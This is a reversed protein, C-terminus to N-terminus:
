YDGFLSLQNSLPMHMLCGAQQMGEIVSKNLKARNKLDEVSLFEGGSRSEVLNFAATEGLGQLSCLPPLIGNPTPLFKKAESKYIDIPLFKIKRAYMEIVLELVKVQDEDKTTHETSPSTLEQMRNKAKDTGNIMYLADFDMVKITFSTAYFELPYYVKYWAIRFSMMVYAAAHAKPFMYKITKCSKIYWEPVSSAIMADEQEPSLGKGKRVQEMIKFSLKKDVGAHILYLMIDDRCCIAESLTCIGDQILKQANGLWVDTGHSLGSIRILESFKTPMTDTLMQRLFPTALEPIGLTGVPNGGIDEPTIGLAETGKFLSMIVPDGMQITQASVKTFDELMRIITPADHGLIDLKLISGHLFHYDFHTTIINSGGADAPRQIPTFDYVDMSKPIIMVGGPHQGTTKKIGTCGLALRNMEARSLIKNREACYKMVFGMATKDALTSITGARFVYGEGFLVETYKHANPQDEGSFNLDIDPEKDGDFGLFTEFPIDYGDKLLPKCCNPCDKDPLDFGCDLGDAEHFESYLCTPCRYHAPLSNVETIGSMNAVFSSGVSGRSGVLYGDANSKAVLKQAILYMVAFGHTIISDLEKVLRTEVIAPLNEGYVEKAKKISMDRIEDAAGEIIPPFTGEPVPRVREIMESIKITNEVVVEYARDGLYEFESLMEDTTRFFLPAQQDADSYGQGGMLIKRYVDDSADLFHVDCTAVVMKGLRDGIRLIKKNINEIEQSNNLKGNRVLFMNNGTPQIELYDYYSAISDLKEDSVGELIAAYLEGAECASGFILGERYKDLLMRPMRPKKYFYNMHSESILKYLNKLGVQNKVLIIAHFSAFGKLEAPPVEEMQQTLYCEVGYIVKMDSKRTENFVAPYAQLVGHDTIAIATHGWEMARKMLEGPPTIGDMSSMQTHLHLEVRKVAADDHRKFPKHEVINMAMLSLEQTFKDYQASGQVTVWKDPKLYSKVYELDDKDFFFKALISNTNDTLEFSALMSNEKIPRLNFSFIKGQVAVMGSDLTVDEMRKISEKIEKGMIIVMGVGNRPPEGEPTLKKRNKPYFSAQRGGNSSGKSTYGEAKVTKSAQLERAAQEASIILIERKEEEKEQIEDSDIFIVQINRDWIQKLYKIIIKGASNSELYGSCKNKLEITLVDNDYCCKSGELTSRISINKETLFCLLSDWLVGSDAVQQMTEGCDLQFDINEYGIKLNIENCFVAMLEHHVFVPSSAIIQIRKEKKFVNVNHIKIGETVKTGTM